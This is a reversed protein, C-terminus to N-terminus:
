AAKLEMVDTKPAPPAPENMIELLKIARTWNGVLSFMTDRDGGTNNLQSIQCAIALSLTKALRRHDKNHTKRAAENLEKLLGM